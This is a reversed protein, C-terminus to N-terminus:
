KTSPSFQKNQVWSGSFIASFIISSISFRSKRWVILSFFRSNPLVSKGSFIASFCATVLILSFAVVLQIFVVVSSESEVFLYRSLVAVLLAALLPKILDEWYWKWKQDPLLRRHMIPILLFIFLTNFIIWVTSAGVAGFNLALFITVPITFVFVIILGSLYLQTWGNALQLAYPIFILSNLGYGITLLSVLVYTQNAIEENQQWLFIIEKSFFVFMMATPLIIVAMMQCGQHYTKILLETENKGVLQLFKPFYAQFIPYIGRYLSTAVLSAISYYGFTDLSLIRVLVIKDVQMLLTSIIGIGGTGTIFKWNENLLNKQFKAAGVGKPLARWLCIGLTLVQLGASLAQWIFFAQPESSVFHLVALAGFYRFITFIITIIGSLLQKQLGILGGLYFTIPFQLILAFSMIFFCSQITSASLQQPNVWNTLAPVMLISLIGLSIAIGWYIIELTRALNRVEQEKEEVGDHLAIERTLTLSLGLDFITLIAQFAAFFSILGYGEVGIYRLYIPVFIISAVTLVANGFINAFINSELSFRIKALKSFHNEM